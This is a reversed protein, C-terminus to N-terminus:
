DNLEFPKGLLEKWQKKQADTLIAEFKRLHENRMKKAKAMIEEPNGGKEAENTLEQFGKEMQHIVEMFERRQKETIKLKNFKANEGILAFAGAQQLQLEFLRDQQKAELVDQLLASLLKECKQRHEQMTKERDGLKADKVQDFVKMTAQVFDPFKALLKDKQAESLKLEEQVKDRFVLFAGGLVEVLPKRAEDPIPEADASLALEFAIVQAQLAQPGAPKTASTRPPQAAALGPILVLGGLITAINM